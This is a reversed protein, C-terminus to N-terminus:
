EYPYPPEIEYYVKFHSLKHLIEKIYSANGEAILNRKYKLEYKAQVYNLNCINAYAKIEDLSCTNQALVLYIHYVTKDYMIPHYVSTVVEGINNFYMNFDNESLLIIEKHNDIIEIYDSTNVFGYIEGITFDGCPPLEFCTCILSSESFSLCNYLGMIM